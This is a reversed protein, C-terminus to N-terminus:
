AAAHVPSRRRLGFREIGLAVALSVAQIVIYSILEAAGDLGGERGVLPTQVAVAVGFVVLTITVAQRWSSAKWALAIGTILMAIQVM